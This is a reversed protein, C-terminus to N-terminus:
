QIVKSLSFENIGRSSFNDGVNNNIEIWLNNLWVSLAEREEKRLENVPDIFFGKEKDVWSLVGKEIKYECATCVLTNWHSMGIPMNNYKFIYVIEKPTNKDLTNKPLLSLLVKKFESSKDLIIESSTLNLRRIDKLALTALMARWEGKIHKHLPHNSNLLAMEFIINRSWVDPIADIEFYDPSQKDVDFRKGLNNLYKVHRSSVKGPKHTTTSDDIPYLNSNDEVLLPRLPHPM